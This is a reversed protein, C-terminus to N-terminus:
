AGTESAVSITAGSEVIDRLVKVTENVKRLDEPSYKEFARTLDSKDESDKIIDTLLSGQNNGAPRFMSIISDSLENNDRACRTLVTMKQDFTLDGSSIDVELQSYILEKIQEARSISSVRSKFFALVEARLDEVADVRKLVTAEAEFAPNEIAAM